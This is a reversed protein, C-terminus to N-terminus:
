WQIPMNIYAMVVTIVLAAFTLITAHKFGTSLTGSSIKGTVLGTLYVQLILPPLLLTAFQAFAVTQHSFSYMVARMFGLFIISSFILLAAGIYPMILLPRLM